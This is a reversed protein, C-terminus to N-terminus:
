GKPNIITNELSTISSMLTLTSTAISSVTNAPMAQSSTRVRETRSDSDPKLLKRSPMPLTNPGTTASITQASSNASDSLAMPAMSASSCEASPAPSPAVKMVRISTPRMM